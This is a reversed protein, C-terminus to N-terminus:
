RPSDKWAVAKDVRQEQPLGLVQEALINLLIETTGGEISNGKARLYRYAADRGTFEVIEPRVMEWQGYTLGDAGLLEIELGSLEQALRAFTVKMASGEPGPRGAALEQKMRSASLEAIHSDVWLRLFRDRNLERLHEPADRWTREVVDLMTDGYLVFFESDLQDLCGFVAGATGRAYGQDEVFRLTAGFNGREACYDKIQDAGHRVLLVIDDIGHALLLRIQHELLAIGGIRVLTKPIPGLRERLRTGMGGALIVAQRM